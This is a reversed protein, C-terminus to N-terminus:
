VLAGPDHLPLEWGPTAPPYEGREFAEYMETPLKRVEVVDGLARAAAKMGDSWGLDVYFRQVSSPATNRQSANMFMAARAWELGAAIGFARDEPVRDDLFQPYFLHSAYAAENLTRCHYACWLAYRRHRTFNGKLPSEIVVLKV